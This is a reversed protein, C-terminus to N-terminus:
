LQILWNWIVLLLIRTNSYLFCSASWNFSEPSQTVSGNLKFRRPFFDVLKFNRFSLNWTKYPYTPWSPRWDWNPEVEFCGLMVSRVRRSRSQSYSKKQLFKKIFLENLSCRFLFRFTECKLHFAFLVLKQNSSIRHRRSLTLYASPGRRSSTFEM